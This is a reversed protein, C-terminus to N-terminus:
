IRPFFEYNFMMVTLLHVCICKYSARVDDDDDNDDNCRTLSDSNLDTTSVM